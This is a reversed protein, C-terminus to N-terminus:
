SVFAERATVYSRKHAQPSALDDPFKFDICHKEFLYDELFTSSSKNLAKLADRATIREDESELLM